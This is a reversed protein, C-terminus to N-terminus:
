AGVEKKNKILKKDIFISLRKMVKMLAERGPTYKEPIDYKKLQWSIVSRLMRAELDNLYFLKSKM